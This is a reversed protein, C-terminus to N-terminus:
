NFDPSTSVLVPRAGGFHFSFTSGFEASYREFVNLPNETMARADRFAWTRPVHPVNTISAGRVSRCRAFSPRITAKAM